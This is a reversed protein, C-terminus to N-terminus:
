MEAPKPICPDEWLVQHFHGCLPTDPSSHQKQRRLGCFCFMKLFGVGASIDSGTWKADMWITINMFYIASNLKKPLKWILVAVIQTQAVTNAFAKDM